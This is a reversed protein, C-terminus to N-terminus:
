FGGRAVGTVKAAPEQELVTDSILSHLPPHPGVKVGKPAVVPHVPGTFLLTVIVSGRTAPDDSVFVIQLQSRVSSASRFYGAKVVATIAADMLPRDASNGALLYDCSTLRPQRSQPYVPLWTSFYLTGRPSRAFDLVQGTADDRVQSLLSTGLEERAAATDGARVVGAYGMATQDQGCPPLPAMFSRGPNDADNGTVDSRQATRAAIAGVDIRTGSGDAGTAGTTGTGHMQTGHSIATTSASAPPGDQASPWLILAIATAAAVSLASVGLLGDRGMVTM